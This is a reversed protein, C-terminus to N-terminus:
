SPRGQCLPCTEATPNRRYYAAILSGAPSRTGLPDGSCFACTGGPGRPYEAIYAVELQQETGDGPLYPVRVTTM